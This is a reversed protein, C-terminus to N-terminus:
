YTKFWLRTRVRISEHLLLRARREALVAIERSLCQVYVVCPLFRASPTRSTDPSSSLTCWRSGEDTYNVGNPPRTSRSRKVARSKRSCASTHSECVCTDSGATSIAARRRSYTTLGAYRLCVFLWSAITTCEYASLESTCWRRNQRSSLHRSISISPRAQGVDGIM